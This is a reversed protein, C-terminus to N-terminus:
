PKLEKIRINRFQVKMPPGPHMQLAIIGQRAKEDAQLDTIRSMLAGNVMLTIEPGRCIVRYTNWDNPRFHELLKAPDGIAEVTKAGDAAIVVREGRGAILGRSHHYVFGVLAGDGTMDAQYGFTDWDPREESRIQIGSNAEPSLKFEARLEFDGPRGGRWILYNPQPCPKQPTSQATIAGDEVTWWGPKGDWGSLDKGNFIPTFGNEVAGTPVRAQLRRIREALQGDSTRALLMAEAVEAPHGGVIKEGIAVAALAAEEAVQGDTLYPSLLALAEARPLNSLVALVLRKEEKREVLPLVEGIQAIKRDDPVTQMPILRLEGRLALIRSTADTATRAIRALDPLADPTPWECLARFATQRVPEDPDALAERVAALARPGATVGLLRLLALKSAGQAGALRSILKDACASPNPQRTCVAAIAAEAQAVDSTTRLADAMAGIEGPGALEGLARFGAGAVRADADAAEKLLFPVAATERRQVAIDAIAARIAPDRDRLLGLVAQDAAPGPWGALGARAADTVKPDRDKASEVLTALASPSGIQTLSRLAAVRLETSGKRAISVLAPAAYPDRRDGLAQVLLLRVPPSVRALERSLTRTLEVGPIEASAHLAGAAAVPSGTRLTQILLPACASGRSRIASWLAALRIPEPLDKRVRLRDYLATASARPLAEACRFLGECVAPRNAAPVASLAKTLIPEAAPGLSGLARAAAQAVDPDSDAILAALPAIAQRDKRVGISSIVGVLSRGRLTLLAARLAADVAPDDIPELAYRAMHSLREDALLAALAPVAEKTGVRALERCADAKAQVPTESKLVAILEADQAFAPGALVLLAFVLAKM